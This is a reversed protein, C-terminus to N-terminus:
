ETLISKINKGKQFKLNRENREKKFITRQIAENEERAWREREEEEEEEEEEEAERGSILGCNIV